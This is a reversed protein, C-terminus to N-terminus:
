RRRRAPKDDLVIRTSLEGVLRHLEDIRRELVAIRDERRNILEVLEDVPIGLFRALKTYHVQDPQHAGSVWRSVTQQTVDLQHAVEAQNMRKRRMADRLAAGVTEPRKGREAM